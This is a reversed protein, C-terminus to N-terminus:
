KVGKKIYELIEKVVTEIDKGTTDVEVADEAKKFPSCEREADLKDRKIIEKKIEEYDKFIGKKCLENYRRKAREEVKATLFFKYDADPLVVTGVDRGDMVVGKKEAMKKQLVVLKERVEPISAVYSVNEDVAPKRIEESVDSGDLYIKGGDFDIQSNEAVSIIDEKTFKGLKLAKLTIARYMAGTDIYILSLKEALIRAITSKGSGAPGDIAIKINKDLL